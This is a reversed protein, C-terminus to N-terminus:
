VHARRDPIDKNQKVLLQQLFTLPMNDSASNVIHSLVSLQIFNTHSRLAESSPIVKQSDWVRISTDRGGSAISKGDPSYAIAFVMHSHDIFPTGILAGTLSDWMRITMDVSASIIHNGDPSYAM